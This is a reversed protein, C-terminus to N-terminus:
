RGTAPRTVSRWMPDPGFGGVVWISLSGCAVDSTILLAAVKMADDVAIDGVGGGESRANGFTHEVQL